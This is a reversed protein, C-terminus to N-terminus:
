DMLRLLAARKLLFDNELHIHKQNDKELEKLKHSLFNLNNRDDNENFVNVLKEMELFGRDMFRHEFLVDHISHSFGNDEPLTTSVDGSKKIAREAFILYPFIEREEELMHAELKSSFDQFLDQITKIRNPEAGTLFLHSLEKRISNLLSRTNVHHVQLIHHILEAMTKQDWDPEKHNAQVTPSPCQNLELEVQESSIEASLCAQILNKGRDKYFNIKYNEFISAAEPIEISIQGISQNPDIKL